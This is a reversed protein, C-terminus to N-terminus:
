AFLVSDLFLKQDFVDLKKAFSDADIFYNPWSEAMWSLYGHNAVFPRRQFVSKEAASDSFLIKEKM